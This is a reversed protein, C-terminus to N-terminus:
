RLGLEQAMWGAVTPGDQPNHPTLAAQREVRRAKHRQKSNSGELADAAGAGQAAGGAYGAAGADAGVSEDDARDSAPQSRGGGGGSSSGGGQRKM